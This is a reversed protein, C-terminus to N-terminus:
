RRFLLMTLTAIQFFIAVYIWRAFTMGDERGLWLAALLCVAAIMQLVIAIVHRYAFEHGVHRHNRLEQLIQRLTQDTSPSMGGGGMGGNGNGGGIASTSSSPLHTAEQAPTEKMAPPQNIKASPTPNQQTTAPKGAPFTAAPTSPADNTTKTTAVVVPEPKPVDEVPTTVVPPPSAAKAENKTEVPETPKASTTPTPATVPRAGTPSVPKGKIGGGGGTGGAAGTSNSEGINGRLNASTITASRRAENVGEPRRQQAVIRVAEVLSKAVFDPRNESAEAGRDFLEAAATEQRLPPQESADPRLLITRVGAATGAQTDRMADGIMWSQSMDLNLDKAAQLLMGPQPKRWPHEKHYQEVTGQPHYPCYYFRDVWAGSTSKILENVRSNTAEVDAETFAGRAVGGQNSVVIIAFGLGRMSAVASAAGQILKVKAPDGLDGDNHILTNDRDLFVARNM